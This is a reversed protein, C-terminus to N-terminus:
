FYKWWEWWFWTVNRWCNDRHSLRWRLYRRAATAASTLNLSSSFQFRIKIASVVAVADHIQRVSSVWEHILKNNARAIRILEQRQSFKGNSPISARAIASDDYVQRVLRDNSSVHKLWSSSSVNKGAAWSNVICIDVDFPLTLKYPWVRTCFSGATLISVASFYIRIPSPVLGATIVCEFKLEYM